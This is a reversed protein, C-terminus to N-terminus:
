PAPVVSTSVPQSANPALALIQAAVLQAWARYQLKGPHFQDAAMDSAQAWALSVFRTHAPTPSSNALRM